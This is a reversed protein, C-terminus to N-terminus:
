LSTSNNIEKRTENKIVKRNYVSQNIHTSSKNHMIMYKAVYNRTKKIPIKRRKMEIVMKM